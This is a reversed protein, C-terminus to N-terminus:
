AAATEPPRAARRRKRIAQLAYILLASAALEDVHGIIPLNDHIEWVGLTFNLLYLIGIAAYLYYKM